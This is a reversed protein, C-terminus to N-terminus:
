SREAMGRAVYEQAAAPVGGVRWPRAVRGSRYGQTSNYERLLKDRLVAEARAAAKKAQEDQQPPYPEGQSVPEIPRASGPRSAVPIPAGRQRRREMDAYYSEEADTTQRSERTHGGGQVKVRGDQDRFYYPKHVLGPNSNNVSAIDEDTWTAPNRELPSIVQPAASPRYSASPRPDYSQGWTPLPNNAQWSNGFPNQWQTGRMFQTANDMAGQVAPDYGRPAVPSQAPPASPAQQPASFPNFFTGKALQDDAQSLLQATDFTVPGTRQGSTYQGLRNLLNGVFAERQRMADQWQMQSGGVGTAQATIPGPRSDIANYAMNGDWSQGGTPQSYQGTSPNFSQTTYSGPMTWSQARSNGGYQQVVQNYAQAWM